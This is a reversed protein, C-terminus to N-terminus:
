PFYFDMSPALYPMPSGYYNRAGIGIIWGYVSKNGAFWLGTVGIVTLLHSWWWEM